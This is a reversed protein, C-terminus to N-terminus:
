IKRQALVGSDCGKNSNKVIYYNYWHSYMQPSIYFRQKEKLLISTKKKLNCNTQYIMNGVLYLIQLSKITLDDHLQLVYLAIERKLLDVLGLTEAMRNKGQLTFM